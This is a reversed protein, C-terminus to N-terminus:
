EKSEYVVNLKSSDTSQRLLMYGSDGLNATQLMKAPADLTVICCTCSGIEDNHSVAEVLLNKPFLYRDDGSEHLGKIRLVTM